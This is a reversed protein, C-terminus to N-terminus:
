SEIVRDRVPVAPNGQYIRYPEADRTLVSCATLVAHSRLTVGPAVFARTGIWVGDELVIPKVILRFSPSNRDHNGSCLFAGQSIACHSGITVEAVCRIWVREAIWSHDGITLRWPFKVNVGPKVIVGAGIQAGFLRLAAVRLRSSTLLRSRMLLANVVHWLTRRLRGAGPDYWSNDYRTLDVRDREAVM